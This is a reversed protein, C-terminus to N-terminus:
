FWAGINETWSVFYYSHWKFYWYFIMRVTQFCHDNSQLAKSKLPFFPSSIFHHSIVPWMYFMCEINLLLFSHFTLHGLAWFGYHVYVHVCLASAEFLFCFSCMWVLHVRSLRFEYLFILFYLLKSIWIFM